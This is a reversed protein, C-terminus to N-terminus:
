ESRVIINIFGGAGPLTEIYRYAAGTETNEFVAGEAPLATFYSRPAVITTELARGGISDPVIRSTISAAFTMASGRLRFTSGNGMTSSTLVSMGKALASQIANM